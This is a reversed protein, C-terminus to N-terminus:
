SRLNRLCAAYPTSCHEPTCRVESKETRLKDYVSGCACPVPCGLPCLWLDPAPQSGFCLCLDLDPATLWLSPLPARFYKFLNLDVYTTCSGYCVRLFSRKTIILAGKSAQCSSIFRLRNCQSREFIVAYCPSYTYNAYAQVGRVFARTALLRAGGAPAHLRTRVVCPAEPGFRWLGTRTRGCIYDTEFFHGM